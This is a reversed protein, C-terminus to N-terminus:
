PNYEEKLGFFLWEECFSEEKYSLFLWYFIGKM